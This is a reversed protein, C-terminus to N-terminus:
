VKDVAGVRVIGCDLLQQEGAKIRDGRELALLREKEDRSLRRTQREWTRIVGTPDCVKLTIRGNDKFPPAVLRAWPPSPTEPYPRTLLLFSFKLDHITRHLRRNIFEITFPVKWRRVDHCYGHALPCPRTHPCPAWIRASTQDRLRQLRRSTVDGAPEILLLAGGLALYNLQNEIWALWVADEADALAENLAFSCLILNWGDEPDTATEPFVAAPSPPLRPHTLNGTASRLEARPWLARGARFLHPLLRLSAESQDVCLSEVPHDSFLALAAFTAAGVGCGLDAIRLRGSPLTCRRWEHLLWQTRVYTQPFFFLGYATLMRAQDTYGGFGTQRNVTFLDSVHAVDREFSLFCDNMEHIGSVRRAENLWWQELVLPYEFDDV